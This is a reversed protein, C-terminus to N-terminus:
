KKKTTLHGVWDVAPGLLVVMLVTVLGVEGGICLAFATVAGDYIMRVMRYPIEKGPKRSLRKHILFVLADYPATGLGCNMYVAAAAVFILLAPIMICFRNIDGVIQTTGFVKDVIWTTADAAYGVLIMNGFSGPGILTRDCALIFLFVVINFCLQYTGFTLGTVKAMGYNMASAPDPGFQTMVLISVCIGMIIVSVLMRLLRIMYDKSM